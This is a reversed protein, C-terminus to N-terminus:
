KSKLYPSFLYPYKSIIPKTDAIDDICRYNKLYVQIFKTTTMHSNIKNLNLFSYDKKFKVFVLIHMKEIVVPQKIM